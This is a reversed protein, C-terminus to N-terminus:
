SPCQIPQTDLGVDRSRSSGRHGSIKVDETYGALLRAGLAARSRAFELSTCPAPTSGGKADKAFRAKARGVWERNRERPDGFSGRWGPRASRSGAVGTAEPEWLYNVCGRPPRAM